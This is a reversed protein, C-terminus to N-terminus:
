NFLKVAVLASIPLREYALDKKSQTGCRSSPSALLWYLLNHMTVPHFILLLGITIKM